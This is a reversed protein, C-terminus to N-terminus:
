IVETIQDWKWQDLSPVNARGKRFLPLVRAARESFVEATCLLAPIFDGLADRHVFDVVETSHRFGTKLKETELRAVRVWPTMTLEPDEPSGTVLIMPADLVCVALALTANCGPESVPRYLERLHNMASVLPLIVNQYADAGTIELNKTKTKAADSETYESNLGKKAARALAVCRPPENFFPESALGLCEAPAVERFTQGFAVELQPVGAITPFKKIPRNEYTVSQFFFYPLASQKCEVLLAINTRVIRGHVNQEPLVKFAFMDLSRHEQTNRDPYGWEETVFFEKELKKAVAAHLPYGSRRVLEKLEEIPLGAHLGNRPPNIIM